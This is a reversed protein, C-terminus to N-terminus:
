LALVSKKLGTLRIENCLDEEICSFSKTENVGSPLSSLTLLNIEMYTLYSEEGLFDAKYDSVADGFYAYIHNMGNSVAVQFATQSM